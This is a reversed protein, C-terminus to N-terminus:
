ATVYIGPKLLTFSAYVQKDFMLM